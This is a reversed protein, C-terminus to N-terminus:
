SKTTERGDDDYWGENDEEGENGDEEEEEDEEDKDEDEGKEEEEEDETEEEAEKDEVNQAEGEVVEMNEEVDEVEEMKGDEEVEEMNKEVDDKEEAENLREEEERDEEIKEENFLVSIINITEFSWFMDESPKPATVKRPDKARPTCTKDSTLTTKPTSPIKQASAYSNFVQWLAPPQPPLRLYTRPGVQLYTVNMMVIMPTQCLNM